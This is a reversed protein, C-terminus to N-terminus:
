TIKWKKATPWGAAIVSVDCPHCETGADSPKLKPPPPPAQHILVGNVVEVNMDGVAFQEPTLDIFKGPQAHRSYCIPKGQDDHYLRFYLVEPEPWEFNAWFDLFIDNNNM